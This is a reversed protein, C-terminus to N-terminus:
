VHVRRTPLQPHVAVQLSQQLEGLDNRDRGVFPSLDLSHRDPHFDGFRYLVLVQALWLALVPSFPHLGHQWHFLSNAPHLLHCRFESTASCSHM